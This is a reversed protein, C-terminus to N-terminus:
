LFSEDKPKKKPPPPAPPPAQRRVPPKQRPPAPPVDGEGLLDDDVTALAQRLGDPLNQERMMAEVEKKEQEKVKAEAQHNRETPVKHIDQVDDIAAPHFEEVIEQVTKADEPALLKPVETMEIAKQRELNKLYNASSKYFAIRKEAQAVLEEETGDFAIGVTPITRTAGERDVVTEKELKLQLPIKALLGQQWPLGVAAATEEMIYKMGSLIYSISRKSTTRFKAVEGLPMGPIRGTLTLHPKCKGQDLLECPCSVPARKDTNPDLRMATKGNGKCWATRGAYVALYPYANLAPQDYLFTIPVTRPKQGIKKHIEQDLVYDDAENKSKLTVIFHDLMMPLRYNRGGGSQRVQEGKKGIAIRRTERLQLTIMGAMMDNERVLDTKDHRSFGLEHQKDEGM